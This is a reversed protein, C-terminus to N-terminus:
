LIKWTGFRKGNERTILGKQTLSVTIAKVTRESKRIASAIEKQTASPNESIVRLVALEELTCSKCKSSDFPLLNASKSDALEEQWDLHMERNKLPFQDGLLLNRFFHELFVTNEAVGEQIDTYNARVLANRFYWSNLAFVDNDVNFGLARLYKIVFVATTRTNGEGFAHIQWLNSCFRVIHKIADAASLGQYNFNREQNLDYDLTDSITDFSAYYVTKGRLVWENKTINYDRIRGAFKYIGYFLRRHIAVYQTPTLSFSPESILEAIRASVKDAEETRDLEVNRRASQSKYYSDILGKAEEITIEGEINKRATKLLYESTKLGDVDQLGIGTRWAYSREKQSPNGVKIYEDFVSM